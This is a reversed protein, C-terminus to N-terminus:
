CASPFSCAWHVVLATLSGLILGRGYPRFSRGLLFLFGAAAVLPPLLLSPLGLVPWLALRLWEGYRGTFGAPTYLTVGLFIAAAFMFLALAESDRSRESGESVPPPNKRKRAM